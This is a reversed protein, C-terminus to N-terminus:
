EKGYVCPPVPAGPRRLRLAAVECSVRSVFGDQGHHHGRIEPPLGGGGGQLGPHASPLASGVGGAAPLAECRRHLGRHRVGPVRLVLGGADDPGRVAM